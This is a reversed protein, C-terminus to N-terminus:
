INQDVMDEGERQKRLEDTIARTLADQIPNFVIEKFIKYGQDNLPPISHMEVYFRDLYQFFKQMWNVMVVHDAWRLTLQKLLEPGNLKKLDDVINTRLYDRISETYKDYLIRQAHEFKLSCLNYAIRKLCFIIYGFLIIFKRM